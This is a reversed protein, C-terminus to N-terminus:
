YIKFKKSLRLTYSCKNKFFKKSTFKILKEIELSKTINSKIFEVNDKYKIKLLNYKKQNLKIDSLVVLYGKELLSLAIVFGIKGFAGTVVITKNNM